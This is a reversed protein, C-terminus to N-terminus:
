KEADPGSEEETDTYDSELAPLECSKVPMLKPRVEEKRRNRYILVCM